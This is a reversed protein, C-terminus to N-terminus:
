TTGSPDPRNNPRLHHLVMRTADAIGQARGLAQDALAVNRASIPAAQRAAIEADCDATLRDLAALLNIVDPSM